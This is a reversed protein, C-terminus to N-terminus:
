DRSALVDYFRAADLLGLGELRRSLGDYDRPIRYYWRGPYLSRRAANVSPDLAAEADSLFRDPFVPGLYLMQLNGQADILLNTPIPLETTQGTVHGVLVEITRLADDDLFVPSPPADVGAIRFQEHLWDTAADRDTPKDLSIPHWDISSARLREVQGAYSRIEEACPKCWHAWLNVLTAHSRDLRIGLDELLVPPLSLPTKLLLRTEPTPPESAAGSTEISINPAAALPQARGSGEVVRYFANVAPPRIPESDGGPWHITLEEIHTAHGLGFHVMSTSQALYGSGAAVQQIRRRRGATLEVVAGIADRNSNRGTLRFAVFGNAGAVENHMFRLQPGTRNKVFVDLRGDLDWDVAAIARADDTFDFGSIRAADLFRGDGLNLFAGNAERGSWSSGNRISQTM